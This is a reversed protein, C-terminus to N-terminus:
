FRHSAWWAWELDSEKGYYKYLELPLNIDYILEYKYLCIYEITANQNYQIGPLPIANLSLDLMRIWSNMAFGQLIRHLNPHVNVIRILDQISIKKNYLRIWNFDYKIILDPSISRSNVITTKDLKRTNIIYMLMEDTLESNRLIGNIVHEPDIDSENLYKYMLDPLWNNLFIHFWEGSTFEHQAIYESTLKKYKVVLWRNVQDAPILEYVDNLSFAPNYYVPNTDFDSYDYRINNKKVYEVTIDPRGMIRDHKWPMEPHEAIFELSVHSRSLNAWHFRSIDENNSYLRLLIEEM